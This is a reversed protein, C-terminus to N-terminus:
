FLRNTIVYQGIILRAFMDCSSSSYIDNHKDRIWDLVDGYLYQFSGNRKGWNKCLSPIDKQKRELIEKVYEAESITAWRCLKNPDAGLDYAKEFAKDLNESYSLSENVEVYCTKAEYTVKCHNGLHYETHPVQYSLRIFKKAKMIKLQKISKTQM